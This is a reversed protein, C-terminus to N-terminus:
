RRKQSTESDEAFMHNLENAENIIFYGIESGRDNTKQMKELKQSVRRTFQAQTGPAREGSDKAWVYYRRWLDSTSISVVKGGAKPILNIDQLFREWADKIVLQQQKVAVQEWVEQPLYGFEKHEDIGRWLAVYDIANVAKWDIKDLTDIQWFRRMGTPDYIYEVIPKNSAGIFCCRQPLTIRKNTYLPRYSTEQATIQRKLEEMDAKQAGAMEDTFMIFNESLAPTSREDGIEHVKIQKVYDKIPQFLSRLATSKGSSQKGYFVPMIEFVTEKLMSKQKVLWLWHAMVYIDEKCYGGTIAKIWTELPELDQDECVLNDLAREMEDQVAPVLYEQLADELSKDQFKPIRGFEAVCRSHFDQYDLRLTSEGVSSKQFQRATMKKEALWYRIYLRVNLMAQTKTIPPNEATLCDKCVTKGNQFKSNVKRVECKPCIKM